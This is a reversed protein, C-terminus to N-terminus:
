HLDFTNCFAGLLANTMLVKTKDIKKSYKYVKNAGNTSLKQLYVAFIQGYLHCEQLFYFSYRYNVYNKCHGM